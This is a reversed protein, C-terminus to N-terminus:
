EEIYTYTNSNPYNSASKYANLCGRPVYIVCTTPIGTWANSNAVTPPTTRKFHIESMAYCNAFANAQISTVSAPITLKTLNYMNQMSNTSITKLSTPLVIEGVSFSQYLAYTPLTQLNPSMTISAMATLNQFAYTGITTCADPLTLKEIGYCSAFAYAGISAISKPFSVHTLTMDYQFMNDLVATTGQPLTISRLSYCTCFNYGTSGWNTMSTPVTIFELCYCLWCVSQGFQSIQTGLEIGIIRARYKTNADTNRSGYISTYAGAATTGSGIFSMTTGTAPALTICYIGGNAYSHSHSAQSTGTYSETASEDGWDVTVAYDASQGFRIVMHKDGDDPIKIYIRTKGDDTVYNQGIILSGHAAVYAQADALTWNWGQSTLGAHVPNPPLETLQAFEEATYSRFIEGTRDDIFDVGKSEVLVSVHANEYNTVDFTGNETISLTGDVLEGAEVQVSQGSLTGGEIYGGTNNVTPTIAIAHDVVEGKVASPIGASGSPMAAVKIEGLTFVNAAVATQESTSPNITTEEATNLQLTSSETGDSVLGARQTATATVLGTTDDISLEPIAQPVVESPIPEIIINERAQLGEIEITQEEPAPTFLYPGQYSPVKAM